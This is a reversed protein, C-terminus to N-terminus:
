FLLDNLKGAVFEAAKNDPTVILISDGSGVVGLVGDIALQDIIGSVTTASNHMTKAVILNNAVVISVVTDKLLNICKVSANNDMKMRTVYKYKNTATPTKILNLEKIDRSITAQTVTFGALKLEAVLEEQTEIDKQAIISLIQTQRTNRSM